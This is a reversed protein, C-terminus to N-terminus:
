SEPSPSTSRYATVGDGLFANNAARIKAAADDYLFPLFTYSPNTFARQKFWPAPEGPALRSRTTM